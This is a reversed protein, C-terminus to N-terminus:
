SGAVESVGALVQETTLVTAFEEHLSTLNVQHVLEAPYVTGDVSTKDFTACGDSVLYTTYGLNGAMRTTTSVCHDTILGTVVLTDIGAARLQEDLTTGIFMSNVSKQVVPEGPLPQVIEKIEHGPQGPYLPSAPNVSCHQAFYVPRRSERWAKLLRAINEEAEPNNRNGGWYAVQDFGQQVDIILLAANNPFM